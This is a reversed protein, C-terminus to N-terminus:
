LQQPMDRVIEPQSVYFCCKENLFLCIGEKEATLLDLGRQNQLVVSALSDLQDPMPKISRAVQEIVNTLETSLQNYYAASLAIGGIGTGIGATIGLGILLLIFQIARKSRTHAVLPVPLTQNNFM